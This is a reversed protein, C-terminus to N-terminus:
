NKLLARLTGFRNSTFSVVAFLFGTRQIGLVQNAIPRGKTARAVALAMMYLFMPILSVCIANQVEKIM